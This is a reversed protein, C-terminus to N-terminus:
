LKFLEWYHQTFLSPTICFNCKKKTPSIKTTQPLLPHGEMLLPTCRYLLLCASSKLATSEEFSPLLHGWSAHHQLGWRWQGWRPRVIPSNNEEKLLGRLRKGGVKLIYIIQYIIWLTYNNNGFCTISGRVRIIIVFYYDFQHQRNM